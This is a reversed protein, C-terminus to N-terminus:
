YADQVTLKSSFNKKSIKCYQFIDNSKSEFKLRLTVMWHGSPIRHLGTLTRSISDKIGQKANDVTPYMESTNMVEGNGGLQCYYYEPTPRNALEYDKELYGAILTHSNRIEYHVGRVVKRENAKIKFKHQNM